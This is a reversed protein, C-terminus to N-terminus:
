RFKNIAHKVTEPSVKKVEAIEYFIETKTKGGISMSNQYMTYIEEYMPWSCSIVGDNVMKQITDKPINYKESLSM